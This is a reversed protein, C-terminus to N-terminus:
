AANKPASCGSPERAPRCSSWCKLGRATKAAHYRGMRLVAYQDGTQVLYGDELLQALLRDLIDRPLDKLQGYSKYNTAGIEKLRARNAGQLTGFVIAKGFRGRTEAVCNIM